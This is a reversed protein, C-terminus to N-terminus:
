PGTEPTDFDFPEDVDLPERRQAEVEAQVASVRRWTLYQAVSLALIGLAHQLGASM